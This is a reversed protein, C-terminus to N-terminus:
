LYGRSYESMMVAGANSANLCFGNGLMPISVVDSNCLVDVPVGTTENGIVLATKNSYSFEYEYINVSSDTMESSVILISEKLCHDLFKRPSAFEIISVYDILSGTKSKLYSREPITGIVMVENIGFCAASRIM